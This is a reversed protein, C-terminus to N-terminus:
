AGQNEGKKLCTCLNIIFGTAVYGILMGVGGGPGRLKGAYNHMIVFSGGEVSMAM